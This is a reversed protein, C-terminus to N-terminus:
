KSITRRKRSSLYISKAHLFIPPASKSVPRLDLGKLIRNIQKCYNFLNVKIFYKFIASTIAENHSCETFSIRECLTKLTFQVIKPKFINRNFIYKIIKLSEKMKNLFINNVYQLSSKNKKFEKFKLFDEYNTDTVTSKKFFADKCTCSKKGIKKTIYGAVYKLVQTEIPKVAGPLNEPVKCYASDQSEEEDEEPLRQM